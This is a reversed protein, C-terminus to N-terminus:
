VYMTPARSGNTNVNFSVRRAPSPTEVELSTDKREVSASTASPHSPHRGTSATDADRSTVTADTNATTAPETANNITAYDQNTTDLLRSSPGISVTDTTDSELPDQLHAQTMTKSYTRTLLLVKYALWSYHKEMGPKGKPNCSRTDKTRRFHKKAQLLLFM